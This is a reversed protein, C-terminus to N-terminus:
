QGQEKSLGFATCVLGAARSLVDESEQTVAESEGEGKVFIVLLIDRTQEGEGTRVLGFDHVNGWGTGTKHWLRAGEPLAAAIRRTGTQVDAAFDLLRARAAQSLMDGFLVTRLATLFGAATATNAHADAAGSQWGARNVEPEYDCLVIDTDGMRRMAATFAEPGGSLRLLLNAASNDSQQVAVTCLQAVTMGERGRGRTGPAWSLEASEEWHLRQELLGSNEGALRLIEAALFFKFTSCFAFRRQGQYFFATAQQVDCAALGISRGSEKELAALAATLREEVGAPLSAMDAAAAPQGAWGPGTQAVAEPCVTHSCAPQAALMLALALLVGLVLHLPRCTLRSVASFVTRCLNTIARTPSSACPM